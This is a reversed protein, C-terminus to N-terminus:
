FTVIVPLNPPELENEFKVISLSKLLKLYEPPPDIAFKLNDFKLSPGDISVLLVITVTVVLVDIVRRECM